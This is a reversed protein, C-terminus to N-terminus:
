SILSNSLTSFYTVTFQAALEQKLENHLKKGETEFMDMTEQSSFGSSAPDDNNLTKDYVDGWADIREALDESIPLSSPAINDVGDNFEEWVPYCEYDAMLKIKRM